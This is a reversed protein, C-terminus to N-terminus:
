NDHLMWANTKEVFAFGYRRWLTGPDDRRVVRARGARQEHGALLSVDVIAGKSLFLKCACLFGGTSVDETTTSAEFPDGNADFGRLRIAVSLRVRVQSRNEIPRAFVANNLRRRLETFDIPREFYDQAGLSRCYEGYRVAPEGSVVIIPIRRTYSFSHLNRCLRFALLGPRKLGLIIAAPKHGLALELSEDSEGTDIVEFIDCLGMKVINRFVDDEDVLLIKLMENLGQNKIASEYTHSDNELSLKTTLRDPNWLEGPVARNRESSRWFRRAYKGDLGYAATGPPCEVGPKAVWYQASSAPEGAPSVSFLHDRSATDLLEVSLIAAVSEKLKRFAIRVRCEDADTKDSLFRRLADKGVFTRNKGVTGNTAEHFTVNYRPTAAYGANIWVVRLQVRESMPVEKRSFYRATFNAKGERLHRLSFNAASPARTAM